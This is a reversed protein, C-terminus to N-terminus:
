TLSYHVAGTDRSGLRDVWLDRDYKHAEFSLPNEVSPALKTKRLSM